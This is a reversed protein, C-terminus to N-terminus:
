RRGPLSANSVVSAIGGAMFVTPVGVTESALLRLTLVDGIRALTPDINSTSLSVAVLTPPTFDAIVFSGDTTNPVTLGVNGVTDEYGSLQVSLIGEQFSANIISTAVWSQALTRNASSIVGHAPQVALKWGSVTVTPRSVPESCNATAIVSDGETALAAPLQLTSVSLNCTPPKTDIVVASGHTETTANTQINFVLDTANVAAYHLIGDGVTEDITLNWRWAQLDQSVPMAPREYSAILGVVSLLPENASVTVQVTDGLGARSPEGNSSAASITMISPPTRDVSISRGDSDKSLTLDQGSVGACGTM